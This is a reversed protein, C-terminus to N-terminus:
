QDNCTRQEGRSAVFLHRGCTRAIRSNEQLHLCSALSGAVGDTGMHTGTEEQM